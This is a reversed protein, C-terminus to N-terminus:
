RRGEMSERESHASVLAKKIHKVWQRKQIVYYITLPLIFADHVIKSIGTHHKSHFTQKKSYSSAAFVQGILYCISILEFQICITVLLSIM